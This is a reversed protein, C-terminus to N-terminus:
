FDYFLKILNNIQQDSKIYIKTFSIKIFNRKYTHQKLNNKNKNQFHFQKLFFIFLCIITKKQKVLPVFSNEVMKVMRKKNKSYLVTNLDTLIKM